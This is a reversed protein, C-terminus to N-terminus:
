AKRLGRGVQLYIILWEECGWPLEKQGHTRDRHKLLIVKKAVFVDELIREQGNTGFGVMMGFSSWHGYILWLSAERSVLGASAKIDSMWGGSSHSLLDRDNFAALRHCRTITAWAVLLTSLFAKPYARSCLYLLCPTVKHPPPDLPSMASFHNGM